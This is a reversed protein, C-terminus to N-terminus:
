KREEENKPTLISELEEVKCRLKLQDSTSDFNINEKLWKYSNDENLHKIPYPREKTSNWVSSHNSNLPEYIHVCWKMSVCCGDEIVIHMNTKPSYGIIEAGLSTWLTDKPFCYTLATFHIYNM